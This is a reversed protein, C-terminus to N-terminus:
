VWLLVDIIEAASKLLELPTPKTELIKIDGKQEEM